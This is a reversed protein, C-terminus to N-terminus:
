IGYRFPGLSMPHQVLTFNRDFTRIRIALSTYSTSDNPVEM